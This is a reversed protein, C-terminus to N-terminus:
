VDAAAEGLVRRVASSAMPVDDLRRAQELYDALLAPLEGDQKSTADREVLYSRGDGARPRDTIRVSGGTSLAHLVREGASVSYHALELPQERSAPPPRNVLWTASSGFGVVEEAQVATAYVARDDEVIDRRRPERPLRSLRDIESSAQARTSPSVFTTGTKEALARLYRLQRPTPAESSPSM